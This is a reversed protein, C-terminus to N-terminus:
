QPARRELEFERALAELLARENKSVSGDISAVRHAADLLQGPDGGDERIVAWVAARDVEIVDEFKQDTVGHVRKIGSVLHQLLLQEDESIKADATVAAWAVWLLARPSTTEGFLGQAAEIIRAENRFVVQAHRGAILTSYRNLVTALPVGVLPIGVKIVTRQLLFKGVIPLGKAATLVQGSYFMKLLPRVAIPLGKSVGERVIEGGKITFAVRILKWLDDPDELNLPVRYLVAVDYALRIQLQTTFLVDTLMTVGAAPLTLPSAGGASGITALVAGSFAGASLGGELAAYRAAMRIRAGVVADAPLGPYKQKFYAADVKATYAQLAHTLLKSFWNGSKVDDGTLTHAFEKLDRLEDKVDVEVQDSTISDDNESRKTTVDSRQVTNPPGALSAYRGKSLEPDAEDFRCGPGAWGAVQQGQDPRTLRAQAVSRRAPCLCSLM